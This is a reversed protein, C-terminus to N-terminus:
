RIKKIILLITIILAASIAVWLLFRSRKASSQAAQQRQIQAELPNSTAGSGSLQAVAQAYLEAPLEGSSALQQQELPDLLYSVGPRSATNAQSAMRRVWDSNGDYRSVSHDFVSNKQQRQRREYAKLVRLPKEQDRHRDLSGAAQNAVSLMRDTHKAPDLLHSFRAFFERASDPDASAGSAEFAYGDAQRESSSNGLYHGIEHLLIMQQEEPSLKPWLDSNLIIEGRIRDVVAPSLGMQAINQSLIRM